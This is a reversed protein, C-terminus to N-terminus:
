HFLAKRLPRDAFLQTKAPQQAVVERKLDGMRRQFALDAYIQAGDDLEQPLVIRSFHTM